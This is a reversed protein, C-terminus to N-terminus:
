VFRQLQQVLLEVAVCNTGSYKHHLLSYYSVLPNVRRCIYPALVRWSVVNVCNFCAHWYMGGSFPDYNRGLKNYQASIFALLNAVGPTYSALHHHPPAPMGWLVSSM